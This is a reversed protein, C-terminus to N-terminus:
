YLSILHDVKAKLEDNGSQAYKALNNKFFDIQNLFAMINMKNLVESNKGYGLKEIYAANLYQEFQGGIPVSLVPKKLFVAESLFSFGGNAIVADATAFDTLFGDESFPRFLVNDKEFHQDAGYVIFKREPISLLLDLMGRAVIGTQYVVIHEQYVAKLGIIEDRIVPPILDTNRKLVKPQFFSTILYHSCRPVKAKVISKALQFNELEHKPIEVDLRCRDIVQINDISIVPINHLKALVFSFSEFDSIVLDPKFLKELAFFQRLNHKLSTPLNKLNLLFTGGPSVTKNEFAFHFGKIETVCGPFNKNLFIYAKSSAVVHVQHGLSILYKIIVKSRTAHGMGEGPVGYLIKM